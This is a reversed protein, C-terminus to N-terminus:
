SGAGLTLTVTPDEGAPEKGTRYRHGWVISGTGHVHHTGDGNDSTWVLVRGDLSDKKESPALMYARGHTSTCGHFQVHADSVGGDFQLNFQHHHEWEKCRDRADMDMDVEYAECVLRGSEDVKLPLANCNTGMAPAHRAESAKRPIWCSNLSSGGVDALLVEAGLAGCRVAERYADDLDCLGGPRFQEASAALGLVGIIRDREDTCKREHTLQLLRGLPIQIVSPDPAWDHRWCAAWARMFPTAYTGLGGYNDRGLDRHYPPLGVECRVPEGKTAAHAM